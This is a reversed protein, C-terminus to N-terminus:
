LLILAKFVKIGKLDKKKAVETMASLLAIPTAAAGSAFVTQNSALKEFVEEPANCWKPEKGKLPMAPENVYTYYNRKRPLFTKIPYRLKRIISM